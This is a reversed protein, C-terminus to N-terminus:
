RSAAINTRILALDLRIDKAIIKGFTEKGNKLTLEVFSSEEVVHYNTLVLDDNVYFGTGLGGNLNHVIVVSEALEDHRTDNSPKIRDAQFRAIAINKDKLIRTRLDHLGGLKTPMKKAENFEEIISTLSIGFAKEEFAEIDKERDLGSLHRTKYRDKQKMNYPVTFSREQKADFTGKVYEGANKDIIYYNVVAMKSADISAKRFNYSAYVPRELMLPTSQLETMAATLKKEAENVALGYAIGALAQGVCAYGTCFSSNNNMLKMNASQVGMQAQTVANQAGAYSPNQYSQTGVQHESAVPEYALIDRNVKAAAVDILVLIETDLEANAAVAKDLDSTEVAIPLDEELEIPFEIQEANVLTKSTIDVAKIRATDVKDVEFGANSSQEIAKLLAGIGGNDQALLQAHTKEFYIGSLKSKLSPPLDSDYRAKLNEIGNRDGDNLLAIIRDADNAFLATLNIDIPYADAFNPDVFLDFQKFEEPASNEIKERLANFASEAKAITPSQQERNLITNSKWQVTRSDLTKLMSAIDPWQERSVPWDQAEAKAALEDLEVSAMSEVGTRLKGLLENFTNGKGRFFGEHGSYVDSAEQIKGKTLLEKIHDAQTFFIHYISSTDNGSQVTQCGLLALCMIIASVQKRM